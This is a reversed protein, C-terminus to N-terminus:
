KAILDLLLPTFYSIICDAGARRFSIITEMLVDNLKLTGSKSGHYIMAYEGSVQYVYLPINPYMDKTQRVIDLYPLGPKVMLMDAGEDVDREVARAALGKSGSPLQYCRRDGFAPASKAADRFPGYFTSAFKAAYSLLAVKKEFGHSILADKIAKIRNDMMDSPAIIHAGAKAYNVAIEALRNISAENDLGIEKNFIGCHGHSTYPCLCLDCAILLSPFWELLKPLGRIVPNLPHDAATGNEDKPISETVGFLLISSLGKPILSELHEKLKNIGMRQIGPMSQIDQADDDNEILFIPYMLNYSHLQVNQEQLKRLTPHFIGSHLKRPM